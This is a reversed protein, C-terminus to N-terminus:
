CRWGIEWFAGPSEYKAIMAIRKISLKVKNAELHNLSREAVEPLVGLMTM